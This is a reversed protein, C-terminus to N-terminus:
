VLFIQDVPIHYTLLPQYKIVELVLGRYLHLLHPNSCHKLLFRQVHRFHPEPSRFHILNPM